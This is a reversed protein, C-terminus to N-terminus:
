NIAAGEVCDSWPLDFIRDYRTTATLVGNPSLARERTALPHEYITAEYAASRVLQITTPLVRVQTLHFKRTATVHDRKKSSSTVEPRAAACGLADAWDDELWAPDVNFPDM